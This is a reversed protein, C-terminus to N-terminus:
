ALFTELGQEVNKTTLLPFGEQLDFRMQHGFIGCTGTGTRDARDKGKTLILELLELYPRAM